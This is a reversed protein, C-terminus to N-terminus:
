KTVTGDTNDANSKAFKANFEAPDFPDKTDAQAREIAELKSIAAMISNIEKGNNLLQAPDSAAAARAQAQLGQKEQFARAKAGLDPTPEMAPLAGPGKRQGQSAVETSSEMQDSNTRAIWVRLQEMFRQHKPNNVDLPSQMMNAHRSVAMQYIPHLEPLSDATGKTENLYATFSTMNQALTDKPRVSKPDLLKLHNTSFTGHCATRACSAILVPHIDRKFVEQLNADVRVAQMAKGTQTAPVTTSPASDQKDNDQDTPIGAAQLAQQVDQDRLMAEKLETQFRKFENRDPIEKKLYEYHPMAREFLKHQACWCGLQLHDSYNWQQIRNAQYLYLEDMSQGIYVIRDYTERVTATEDIRIEVERDFAQIQGNLV